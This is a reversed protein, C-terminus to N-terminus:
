LDLYRVSEKGGNIVWSFLNDALHFFHFEYNVALLLISFLALVINLALPNREAPGLFPSM